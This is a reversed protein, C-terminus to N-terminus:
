GDLLDRCGLDDVALLIRELNHWWIWPPIGFASFMVPAMIQLLVSLRYDDDLARRDYGKVGHALLAAHYRDLLPRERRRRLDPYWHMAMMYSLDQTAISPRWTDWDILRVDGSREDKPLLCNWVHADGHVLTVNRHSHHRGFLGPAKDLLRRYLDRREDSLLDGARDAFAAFQQSFGAMIQKITESDRWTGVSVGLRPDDWWTAHFGALTELIAECQAMTPPLPWDTALSLHSESLDELLLHWAKTEEDWRADFCRPALRAPMAPVLQTYFAVEQRGHNASSVGRGPLATKLIVFRPAAGDDPEYTLRLRVVRSVITPYINEVAVKCVRGDRLAGSRRLAATLHEADASQPLPEAATM